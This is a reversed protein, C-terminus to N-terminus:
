FTSAADQRKGNSEFRSSAAEVQEGNKDESMQGRVNAVAFGDMPPDSMQARGLNERIAIFEMEPTIVGQRAYWLQTVAHGGSARLPRRKPLNPTRLELNSTKARKVAYEQHAESLYGDDRPKRERGDYEEVDGRRL